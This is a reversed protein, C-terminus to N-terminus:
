RVILEASLRANFKAIMIAAFIALEAMPVRRRGLAVLMAAHLSGHILDQAVAGAAQHHERRDAAGQRAHFLVHPIPM